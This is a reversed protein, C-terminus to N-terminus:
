LCGIRGEDDRWHQGCENWPNVTCFSIFCERYIRIVGCDTPISLYFLYIVFNCRLSFYNRWFFSNFLIAIRICFYYVTESMWREHLMKHREPKYKNTSLWIVFIVTLTIMLSISYTQVQILGRVDINCLTYDIRNHSLNVSESNVTCSSFDLFILFFYYYYYDCVFTRYTFVQLNSLNCIPPM